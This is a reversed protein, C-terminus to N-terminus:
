PPLHPWGFPLRVRNVPRPPPFSRARQPSHMTTTELSISRYLLRMDGSVCRRRASRPCGRGRDRTRNDAFGHSDGSEHEAQRRDGKGSASAELPGRRGLNQRLSRVRKAQGTGGSLQDCPPRHRRARIRATPGVQRERSGGDTRLRGLGGAWNARAKWRCASSRRNAIRQEIRCDIVGRNRGIRDAVNLTGPM